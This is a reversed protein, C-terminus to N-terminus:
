PALHQAAALVVRIALDADGTADPLGLKRREQNWLVGLVAGARIGLTQAVTFVAACEMESALAGGRQWASWKQELEYSVPMREPSHQGYFSDKSQIVGVHHMAGLSQAAAVLATTADFDAVAPFEIPLYERSTGEARIAATAIVIDGGCVREAIGGCTGVRLVTRVGTQALEEVAIAASPGGIGTSTVLIRRGNREGLWSTFERNQAFLRPNELQRAITEVRGPDGPLIALDANPNEPFALHFLPTM